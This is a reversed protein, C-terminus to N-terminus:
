TFSFILELFCINLYIFIFVFYFPINKMWKLNNKVFFFFSGKLEERHCWRNYSQFTTQTDYRFSAMVFMASCTVVERISDMGNAPFLLPRTNNLCRKYFERNKANWGFEIFIRFINFNSYKKSFNYSKTPFQINTCCHTALFNLINWVKEVYFWLKWCHFRWLTLEFHKLIM